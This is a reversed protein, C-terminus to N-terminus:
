GTLSGECTAVLRKIEVTTLAALQRADVGHQRLISRLTHRIAPHSPVWDLEKLRYAHGIATLYRRLTARGHAGALSSLYAMVVEPEASLPTWGEM